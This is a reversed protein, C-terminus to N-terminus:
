VLYEEAETAALLQHGSSTSHTYSHCISPIKPSAEVRLVLCSNKRTTLQGNDINNLMIRPDLVQYTHSEPAIQYSQQAKPGM